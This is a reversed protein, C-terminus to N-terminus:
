RNFLLLTCIQFDEYIISASNIIDETQVSRTSLRNPNYKNYYPIESRWANTFRQHGTSGKKIIVSPMDQTNKYKSHSRFRKELVHHAEFKGKEIIGQKELKKILKRQNKHSDVGYESLIGADKYQTNNPLDRYDPGRQISSGQSMKANLPDSGAKQLTAAMVFTGHTVLAASGILVPVGAVTGGGSLCLTGGAGIGAIGTTIEIAALALASNRAIKRGALVEPDSEYVKYLEYDFEYLFMSYASIVSVDDILEGAFGITIDIANDKTKKTHQGVNFLGIIIQEVFNENTPPKASPPLNPNPGDGDNGRDSTSGALWDDDSTLYRGSPDVFNVPNSNVYNFGNQSQPLYSSGM